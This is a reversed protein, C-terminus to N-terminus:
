SSVSSIPVNYIPPASQALQALIPQLAAPNQRILQRISALQPSNFIARLQEPGSQGGLEPEAESEAAPQQQQQPQQASHRINAPIGNILYEVARELNFFAARLAELCQERPFGM